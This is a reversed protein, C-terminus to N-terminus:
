WEAGVASRAAGIIAARAAPEAGLVTTLRNWEALTLTEARRMPDIEAGALAAGATERGLHLGHSLSNLLQKRKQSFGARAVAFFAARDVTVAPSPRVILQLIASDVNPQPSFATAPVRAILTPQSYLQVSLALLSLDGPGACIRQAVEWQVMVVVLTPPQEAELLRRLIASTIYYPLNAVVKYPPRAGAPADPWVAVAPDVELIDAHVITIRASDAFERQLPEILRHDLEVATIRGALKALVRTLAGRGPGIELVADAPTLEAAAAVRELYVPETLYNQGLSKKAPISALSANASSKKHRSSPGTSSTHKSMGVTYMCKACFTLVRAHPLVWCPDYKAPM